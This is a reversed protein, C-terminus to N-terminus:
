MVRRMEAGLIGTMAILVAAIAGIGLYLAQPMARWRRRALLIGTYVATTVYGLVSHVRHQDVFAQGVGEAVLPVYDIFGTVISVAAGALGLGILYTSATAFFRERTRVFLLDFLFSTLWLAIPFHVLLPHYLFRM